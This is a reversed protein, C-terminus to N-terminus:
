GPGRSGSSGLSEDALRLEVYDAVRIRGETSVNVPQLGVPRGERFTVLTVQADYRLRTGLAFAYTAGGTSGSTYTTSVGGDLRTITDPGIQRHYHGSLALDTCGREATPLASKRDHVLLVAIDGDECAVEALREGVEEVTEGDERRVATLGSERPDRDGLFRIGAVEAPEGSLVTFGAREYQEVIAPGPDHNGAVAVVDYGEFAKALSNVSFAEWTGGTSTDDGANILLAAGGADGIARAVPDMGINDHRDSVLLAVTEDEDPVRLQDAIGPVAAEITGYFRASASYVDLASDLLAVGGSSLASRAVEIRALSGDLELDPLLEGVAVWEPQQVAEGSGAPVLVAAGGLLLAGTGVGAGLLSGRRREHLATRAARQLEKRRRAGVLRWVGATLLVTLLGVGAGRVLAVLAMDRLAGRVRQIEGAPQSAILADRQILQEVSGTAEVTDGVDLSVGLGLPGDAPMRVKPMVAGLDLTAFGDFAPRVVTTHAGVTVTRSEYRFATVSAALTVVAFLLLLGLAATVQRRTPLRSM